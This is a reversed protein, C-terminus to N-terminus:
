KKLLLDLIVLVLFFYQRLCFTQLVRVKSVFFVIKVKEQRFATKSLFREFRVGVLGFVM